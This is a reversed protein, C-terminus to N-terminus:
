NGGMVSRIVDDQREPPSLIILKDNAHMETDGNPIIMSVGRVICGVIMDKAFPIDRIRQNCVPSERDILLETLIIQGQEVALTNVISEVTSTQEIYNAIMYTASIASNVGLKRFVEVNKPNSVVSVVKSIHYIRKATQCIALNDADVPGLAILLDFHDIEAEDLVYRKCPDGYVVPIGHTQALYTCYQQNDNIVVLTHKKALLSRILFDAKTRGGVIIIRM